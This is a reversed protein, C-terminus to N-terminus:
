KTIGNAPDGIYGARFDLVYARHGPYPEWDLDERIGWSEYPQYLVFYPADREIEKMVRAFAANRKDPDVEYLVGAYLKRYADMGISPEWFGNALAYGDPAWMHGFGGHPDAFYLPNSWNSIERENGKPREVAVNLNVNIGIERWMEQMAQAALVGNTYYVPHTHFTLETGELHNEAVLRKAEDLDYRFTQLDPTYYQGEQVFTHTSPVNAKGQWLAENLLDRDVALMMAKRLPATIKPDREGTGFFVVHFIPTQLGVTRTGPNDDIVSLQDPAINTIVDYEGNVLGTIRANTEPVLRVTIKEYPAKEGWYEDFREYVLTQQPTFEAIKYPGTGVPAQGFAIYDSEELADPDGSLGMLYDKPLIMNNFRNLFMEMLPEPRKYTIRLTTDDLAEITDVNGWYYKSIAVYKGFVPDKMNEFTFLVDEITMDDGNHFKVGKRIKLVIETPSVIEWSTALGPQFVVDTTTPDKDILAEFSNIWFQANVNSGAGGPDLASSLTAVAVNLEQAQATAAALVLATTALLTKM